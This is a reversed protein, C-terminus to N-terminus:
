PYFMEAQFGSADLGGVQIRAHVHLDADPALAAQHIGIQEPSLVKRSVVEGNIDMFTLDFSPMRVEHDARNHLDASFLLVHEVDTRNLSSGDLALSALARPPEIRCDAQECLWTWVPLTEPWRAALVDRQPWALQGAAAVVLVVLSVGLVARVWPRRWRAGSKAERLFRPDNRNVKELETSGSKAAREKRSKRRPPWEGADEPLMSALTPPGARNDEDEDTADEALMSPLTSGGIDPTPTRPPGALPRRTADDPTKGVVAAPPPEPAKPVITRPQRAPVPTPAAFNEALESASPERSWPAPAQPAVDRPRPDFAMPETPESYSPAEFDTPEQWETPAQWSAAEPAPAPSSQPMPTPPQWAQPVPTPTPPQWARSEPSPTAAPWAPATPVPSPAPPQWADPMPVPAPPSAQWPSPAPALAPLPALSTPQWADQAPAPAPPPAQWAQPTAAPAQWAQEAPSPARPQWAPPTPAREAVPAQWEAPASTSAPIPSSTQWAPPAPVPPSSAHWPAPVNDPFASPIPSPAPAAQARASEEALRAAFRPAIGRTPAPTPAIPNAAPLGSAPTFGPPPPAPNDLPRGGGTAQYSSRIPVPSPTQPISRPAPAVPAAPPVPVVIAAPPEPEPIPASARNDAFARTSPASLPASRAARRAAIAPDSDLDFLAEIGHFVEHCQGCRVWGESVKLQDQVVRFITGCAPCRTALSM